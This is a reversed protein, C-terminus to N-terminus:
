KKGMRYRLAGATDGKKLLEDYAADGVPAPNVAGPTPTDEKKKPTTTPAPAPTPPTATKKEAIKTARTKLEEEILGLADEADLADNAFLPLVALPNREFMTRLTPDADLVERYEPKMALRMIGQSAKVDEDAGDGSGDGASPTSTAAPTSSKKGSEPDIGNRRLLKEMRSAKSDATSQRAKLTEFESKKVTVTEDAADPAPTAAGSGDGAPPTPEKPDVPTAADNKYM